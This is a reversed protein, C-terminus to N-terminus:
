GNSGRLYTCLEIAPQATKIGFGDGSLIKSYSMTHLDYFKESLDFEVGNINFIRIPKKDKEISLNIIVETNGIEIAAMGWRSHIDSVIIKWKSGFLYLLLDLLHIGINTFIGGSKTIDGKWSYDYWDGRPTYYDVEVRNAPKIVNKMRLILPSLRLQLINWIKGGYEEEAELLSDINRPNLALPKECIVDAGVRLGFLCHPSHLYNPSCVVCYDVPNKICFRDFREYERFYKCDKFYTDVVGVSDHPDMIGVLEGGTEAIARMHKEFVYGAGIVVYKKSM